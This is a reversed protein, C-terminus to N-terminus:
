RRTPQMGALRTSDLFPRCPPDPRLPSELRSIPLLMHKILYNKRRMRISRQLNKISRDILHIREPLRERRELEALVLSDRM